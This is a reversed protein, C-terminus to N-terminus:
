MLYVDELLHSYICNEVEHTNTHTYFLPYSFFPVLLVNHLAGIGLVTPTNLVTRYLLM